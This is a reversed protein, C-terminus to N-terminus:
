VRRAFYFLLFHFILSSSLSSLLSTGFLPALPFAAVFLTVFGYQIVASSIANNFNLFNQTQSMLFYLFNVWEDRPIWWVTGLAWSRAFSLRAGMVLVYIIFFLSSCGEFWMAWWICTNKTKQRVGISSAVGGTTFQRIYSSWLTIGFNSEWWSSPCSFVSSAWVGRRIACTARLSSFNARERRMMARTISFDARLSPSTFWHPTTTWLNLYSSRSHTAIRM